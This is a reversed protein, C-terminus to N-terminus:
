RHLRGRPDARVAPLGGISGRRRGRQLRRGGTTGTCGGDAVWFGPTEPCTRRRRSRHGPVAALGVACLDAMGRLRRLDGTDDGARACNIGVRGAMAIGPETWRGACAAIGPWAAVDVFGDREGDSCGVVGDEFQCADDCGDGPV